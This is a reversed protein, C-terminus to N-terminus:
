SASINARKSKCLKITEPIGKGNKRFTGTMYTNNALLINALKVSTFYNDIYLHNYDNLFLEMLCMVLYITREKVLTISFSSDKLM